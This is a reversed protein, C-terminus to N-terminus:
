SNTTKYGAGNHSTLTSILIYVINSYTAGTATTSPIVTENSADYNYSMALSYFKSM